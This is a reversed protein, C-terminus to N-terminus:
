EFLGKAAILANRKDCCRLMLATAIRGRIKQSRRFKQLVKEDNQVRRACGLRRLRRPRMTHGTQVDNTSVGQYRNVLVKTIDGFKEQTLSDRLGACVTFTDPARQM